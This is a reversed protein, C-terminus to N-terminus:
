NKQAPSFYVKLYGDENKLNLAGYENAEVYGRTKLVPYFYETWIDTAYPAFDMYKFPTYLSGGSNQNFLRGSQMEVYQGDTDTLLKEWIMGQRRFGGYGYRKVPKTMMIVM